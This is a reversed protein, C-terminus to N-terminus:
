ADSSLRITEEVFWSLYGQNKERFAPDKWASGDITGRCASAGCHCAFSEPGVETTGYDFCVEKGAEIRRRAVLVIQGKVGANPDCSHNFMEAEDCQEHSTSGLYFGDGVTVPHTALHPYRDELEDIEQATYVKGGWVVRVLRNFPVSIPSLFSHLKQTIEMPVPFPEFRLARAKM